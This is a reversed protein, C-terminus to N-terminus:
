RITEKEDNRTQRQKKPLALRLRNVFTQDAKGFQSAIKKELTFVCTICIGQDNSIHYYLWQIPVGSEFGEVVVRLAPHGTATKVQQSSEFSVTEQDKIMKRVEAEFEGLELPKDAPRNPLCVINCQALMNGHQVYRLVAAEEESAIIRWAPSHIVSFPAGEPQLIFSQRIKDSTMVRALKERTLHKSATIPKIRMDLKIQGEFGPAIQGPDTQQNINIRVAKVRNTERDIQVVGAVDLETIVDDIEGKVHGSIHILAMNDDASKLKFQVDSTIVHDINLLRGLPEHNVEWLDGIEVNKQDVLGVLAVPDCPNRLLEYESRQLISGISAIQFSNQNNTTRIRSLIYRNQESLQSAKHAKDTEINAKAKTYYRVAQMAGAKGSLQQDFEFVGGVDLPLVNPEASGDRSLDVIMDGYYEVQFRVAQFEGQEAATLLDITQSRVDNAPSCFLVLTLVGFFLATQPFSFDM